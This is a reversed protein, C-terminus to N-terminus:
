PLTWMMAYHCASAALVFLHWIEHFGFRGPFPDPRKRAYIVAGVSYTVGGAFLWFLGIAPLARALPYLAVVGVWGTLLYLGTTVWRPADIWLFTAGFGVVTLGWVVGLVSWGWAGGLALLAIPTYTGAILVFVMLHDLKRLRATGRPTLRLLHYASSSAYLAVLSVGYVAFAVLRLPDGHATLVLATLGAVALLAGTLHSLGNFPERLRPFRPFDAATLTM